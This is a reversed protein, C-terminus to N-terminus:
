TVMPFMSQLNRCNDRHEGFDACFLLENLCVQSRRKQWVKKVMMKSIFLIMIHRYPLMSKERTERKLQKQLRYMFSGCKKLNRPMQM